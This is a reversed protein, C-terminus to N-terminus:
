IFAFQFTSKKQRFKKRFVERIVVEVRDNNTRQKKKLTRKSGSLNSLNMNKKDQEIQKIKLKLRHIQM